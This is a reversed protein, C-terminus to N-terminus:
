RANPFRAWKGVHRLTQNLKAPHHGHAFVPLSCFAAHRTSIFTRSKATQQGCSTFNQPNYPVSKHNEIGNWLNDIALKIVFLCEGNIEFNYVLFSTKHSNEHLVVGLSGKWRVFNLESANRETVEAHLLQYHLLICWNHLHTFVFTM